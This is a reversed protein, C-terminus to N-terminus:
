CIISLALHFVHAKSQNWRRSDITVGNTKSFLLEKLEEINNCEPFHGGIGSIVVEEKKHQVM